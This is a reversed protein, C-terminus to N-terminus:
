SRRRLLRFNILSFVLIIAFIVYSTASALGFNFQQFATQYQYLGLTTGAQLPGGTGGTLVYPEDFIQLGGITAIVASVLIM